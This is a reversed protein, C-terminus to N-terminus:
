LSWFNSIRPIEVDEGHGRVPLWSQNQERARSLACIKWSYSMIITWCLDLMPLLMGVLNAIVGASNPETIVHNCIFVGCPLYSILLM